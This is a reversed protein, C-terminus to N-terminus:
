CSMMDHKIFSLDLLKDITKQMIPPEHLGYHPKRVTIPQPDGTDIVLMNYGGVQIKVGDERFVM